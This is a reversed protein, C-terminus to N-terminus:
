IAETSWQRRMGPMGDLRESIWVLLPMMIAWGIALATLAAVENVLTIGDLKSGAIYALPGGFLGFVAAVMPKGRLWRLSVNLTTAFVMWLTIIWYPAVYPSFLGSPYDVWNFVVLVSDFAAGLLACFLILLAEEFANRAANLHIGIAIMVMLPGLWPAQIAAGLVSLVWVAYYIVANIVMNM